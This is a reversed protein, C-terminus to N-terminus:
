LYQKLQTENTQTTGDAKDYHHRLHSENCSCETRKGFNMARALLVFKKEAVEFEVYNM